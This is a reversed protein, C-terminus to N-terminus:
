AGVADRLAVISPSFTNTGTLVEDVQRLRVTDLPVKVILPSKCTNPVAFIVPSKISLPVRVTSPLVVRPPFKVRLPVMVIPPLKVVAPVLFMVPEPVMFVVPSAVMPPVLVITSLGVIFKDLANLTVPVKLTPVLLKIETPM